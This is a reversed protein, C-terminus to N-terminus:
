ASNFVGQLGNPFIKRPLPLAPIAFDFIRKNTFTQDDGFTEINVNDFEYLKITDPHSKIYCFGCCYRIEKDVYKNKEVYVNEDIQYSILHNKSYFRLTDIFNKCVFIDGDLYIVNLGADLFYKIAIMKGLMLMDWGDEYFLM